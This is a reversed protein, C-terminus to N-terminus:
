DSFGNCCLWDHWWAEAVSGRKDSVPYPEWVSAEKILKGLSSDYYDQPLVIKEPPREMNWNFLIIKNHIIFAGYYIM